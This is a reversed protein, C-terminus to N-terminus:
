LFVDLIWDRQSTRKLGKKQIHKLFVEQEETLPKATTMLRFIKVFARLNRFSLVTFTRRLMKSCASRWGHNGTRCRASNRGPLASYAESYDPATAKPLRPDYHQKEPMAPILPQRHQYKPLRRPFLEATLQTM